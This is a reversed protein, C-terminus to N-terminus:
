SVIQVGQISIDGDDTVDHVSVIKYDVLHIERYIIVWVSYVKNYHYDIRTVSM